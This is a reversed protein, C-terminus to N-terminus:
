LAKELLPIAREAQLPLSQVLLDISQQEESLLNEQKEEVVVTSEETVIEQIFDSRDSKKWFQTDEEEGASDISFLKFGDGNKINDKRKKRNKLM